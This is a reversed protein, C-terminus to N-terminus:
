NGCVLTFIWIKTKQMSNQKFYFGAAEIRYKFTANDVWM